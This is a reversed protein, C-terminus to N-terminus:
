DHLGRVVVGGDFIAFLMITTYVFERESLRYRQERDEPADVVITGL